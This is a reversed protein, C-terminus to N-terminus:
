QLPEFSKLKQKKIMEWLSIIGDSGGTVLVSEVMPHLDLANVPYAIPKPGETRHAKFSFNQGAENIRLFADNRTSMTPRVHIPKFM